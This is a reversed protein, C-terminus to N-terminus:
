KRPRPIRLISLKTVLTSRAIGLLKAARTQNGNCKALADVIRQRELDEDPALPAAAAQKPPEDFVLDAADISEGTAFILAREMLNRLERVNGPWDHSQLRAAASASLGPAPRGDRAAAAALLERALPMIQGRRERLAPIALTVGALRYYLDLRFEGSEVLSLLERHTASLFRARIAIPTTGGVRMLERSEVARLLKAQLAGPMDGIEDLLVTGEGAVELLGLKVANAGTFAGKEHGFLESELLEHGIAACNISVLRGARGSLRHITEALVQKGSGSEGRLLVNVSSRAVALLVGSPSTGLPDVIEHSSRPQVESERVAVLTFPGISIPEGARVSRPQNPPITTGVQTGNRSGLDEVLVADGSPAVGIRAHRRSVRDHVLPVDCDSDRGAVLDAGATLSHTRLEGAGVVILAWGTGAPVRSVLSAGRTSDLPDTV